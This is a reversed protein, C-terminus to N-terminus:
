KRSDPKKNPSYGPPATANLADLVIGTLDNEGSTYLVVPPVRPDATSTDLVLAFNGAKAKVSIMTRIEELIKERMRRQQEELSARAERDFTSIEQEKTRLALLKEEAAKKRRDREEASLALDAASSLAKDYEDKLKQYAEVMAKREKDLEAARDKLEADATRTKYYDDFVKRLDVTGIKVQASGTAVSAAWLGVLLVLSSVTRM